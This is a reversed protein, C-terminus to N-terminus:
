SLLLSTCEHSLQFRLGNNRVILHALTTSCVAKSMNASMGSLFRSLGESFNTNSQPDASVAELVENTDGNSSATANDLAAQHELAENQLVINKLRLLRRIM